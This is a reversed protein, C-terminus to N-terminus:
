RSALASGSLVVVGNALLLAVLGMKTWFVISVAFAELDTLFLLAGSLM